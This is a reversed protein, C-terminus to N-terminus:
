NDETSDGKNAGGILWWVIISLFAWIVGTPLSDRVVASIGWVILWGLGLVWFGYVIIRRVGLGGRLDGGLSSIDEEVISNLTLLAFNANKNCNKCYIM